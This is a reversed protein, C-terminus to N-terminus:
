SKSMTLLVVATRQDQIRAFRSGLYSHCYYQISRILQQKSQMHRGWRAQGSVIHLIELLMEDLKSLLGQGVTTRDCQKVLNLLQGAEVTREKMVNKQLYDELDKSALAGQNTTMFKQIDRELDMAGPVAQFLQLAKMVAKIAAASFLPQSTAATATIEEAMGRLKAFFSKEEDRLSGKRMGHRLEPLISTASVLDELSLHGDGHVIKQLAALKPSLTKTSAATKICEQGLLTYYGNEIGFSRRVAREFIGKGNYEKFFLYDSVDGGQGQLLFLLAKCFKEIRDCATLILQVEGWPHKRIEDLESRTEEMKKLFTHALLGVQASSSEGAELM